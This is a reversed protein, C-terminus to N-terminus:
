SRGQQKPGGILEDFEKFIPPASAVKKQKTQAPLQQVSQQNSKKKQKVAQKQQVTSQITQTKQKTTTGTTVPGPPTVATAASQVPPLTKSAKAAKKAAIVDPDTEIGFAGKIWKVFRKTLKQKEVPPPPPPPPQIKKDGGADVKIKKPRAMGKGRTKVVADDVVEAIPKVNELGKATAKQVGHIAKEVKPIYQLEARDKIEALKRNLQIYRKNCEERFTDIKTRIKKISIAGGLAVYENVGSELTLKLYNISNDRRVIRGVKQLDHNLINAEEKKLELSTQHGDAIRMVLRENIKSVLKRTKKSGQLITEKVLTHDLSNKFSEIKILGAEDRNPYRNNKKFFDDVQKKYEECFEAAIVKTKERILKRRSPHIGEEAIKNLEDYISEIDKKSSGAQFLKNGALKKNLQKIRAVTDNKIYDDDEGILKKYVKKRDEVDLGCLAVRAERKKQIVFEYDPTSSNTGKDPFDNNVKEEVIRDFVSLLQQKKDNDKEIQLLKIFKAVVADSPMGKEGDEIVVDGGTPSIKDYDISFLNSIDEYSFNDTIIKIGDYGDNFRDDLYNKLLILEKGDVGGQNKIKTLIKQVGQTKGIQEM